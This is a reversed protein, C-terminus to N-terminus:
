EWLEACFSCASIAGGLTERFPIWRWVKCSSGSPGTELKIVGLLQSCYKRPVPFAPLYKGVRERHGVGVIFILNSTDGQYSSTCVDPAEAKTAALPIPRCIIKSQYGIPSAIIFGLPCSCVFFCNNLLILM